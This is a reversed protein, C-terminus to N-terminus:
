IKGDPQITVANVPGNVGVGPSFSNDVSGNYNLRAINNLLTQNVQPFSGGFVVQNGPSQVAVSNVTGKVGFGLNFNFNTDLAGSPLLRALGRSNTGNVTTFSGGM